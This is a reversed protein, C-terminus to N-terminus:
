GMWDSGPAEEWWASGLGRFSFGSLGAGDRTDAASGSLVLSLNFAQDHEAVGRLIVGKRGQGQFSWGMINLPPQYKKSYCM